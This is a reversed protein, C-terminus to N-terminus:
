SDVSATPKPLTEGPKATQPAPPGCSPDFIIRAGRKYTLYSWTWTLFVSVKDRFGVLFILHVLLWALWAPFGSFHFRGISAIGRNRGITAMSGRDRYRFPKRHVTSSPASTRLEDRLLDAVHEGMQIAAPAVGPVPSGDPNDIAAIDGIAFVNPHDPLSLDPNVQIRGGPGLPTELLATVPNAMVGAGWLTNRTHITEGSDLVVHDEAVHTVRIGQIVEVGLSELQRKAATSLKPPYTSLLREGSDILVIRADRTNIRRFDRHFVQHALEAMAGALEVGTPGGGVVVITMLEQRRRPDTTNEAHEFSTLLHRRIHLADDLSKLGMAHQAWQDNGFYSTVGGMAIVLYDYHLENSCLRVHQQNLDIAEVTDMLVTINRHRTLITRIPEAIDPASLGAMAVQYLLPQFLHHNTRDILTIAADASCRKCFTLGGFGAGLVVIHPKDPRNGM